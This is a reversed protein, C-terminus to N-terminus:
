VVGECPLTGPLDVFRRIDELISDLGVIDILSLKAVTVEQSGQARQGLEGLADLLHEHRFLDISCANVQDLKEEIALFRGDDNIIEQRATRVPLGAESRTTITLDPHAQELFSPRLEM